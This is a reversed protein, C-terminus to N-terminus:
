GRVLLKLGPAYSSSAIQTLVSHRHGAPNSSVHFWPNRGFWELIFQDFNVNDRLNKAREFYLNGTNSSGHFDLFQIDTAQGKNHQSGGSRNRFGSTITFPGYAALMPELVTKAHHCMNLLIQKQSLGVAQTISSTFSHRGVACWSMSLATFNPSLAFSAAFSSFSSHTDAWSFTEPLADVSSCDQVIPPDTPPPTQDEEAQSMPLQVTGPAAMGRQEPVDNHEMIHVDAATTGPLPNPNVDPPPPYGEDVVQGAVSTAPRYPTNNDIIAGAGGGTNIFVDPSGSSATGGHKKCPSKAHPVIPDGVRVAQDGGNGENIFVNPSASSIITPPYCKPHGTTQDVSRRSIPINNVFVDGSGEGMKDGCDIPDGIRIAAPM